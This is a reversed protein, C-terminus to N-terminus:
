KLIIRFPQSRQTQVELLDIMRTMQSYILVRHGQSKLRSLLVDLTHLKGSEMILSEKDPFFVSFYFHSPQYLMINEPFWHKLESITGCYFSVCKQEKLGLMNAFVPPYLLGM